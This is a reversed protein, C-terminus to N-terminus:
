EKILGVSMGVWMLMMVVFIGSHDNGVVVGDLRACKGDVVVIDLGKAM